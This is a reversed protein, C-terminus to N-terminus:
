SILGTAGHEGLQNGAQLGLERCWAAAQRDGDKTRIRGVTLTGSGAAITCRARGVKVLTGPPAAGATETEAEAFYIREGAVDCFCRGPTACIWRRLQEADRRWDIRFDEEGVSSFYSVREAGQRRRHLKGAEADGVLRGVLGVSRDMIRDYLSEVSDDRRTRLRVQYLIDGTDLGADVVHVTLGSWHEGGRLTWFVPHLGRYAPLLSAHFNATLLRPVALMEERFRNLYGVALFLDPQLRRMTDVFEASNLRDPEFTPIRRTRAYEVFSAGDTTRTNTSIRQSPPVDVAAAIECSVERLAAFYRNSFVGESNGFFVVRLM